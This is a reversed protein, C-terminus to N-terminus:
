KKAARQAFYFGAVASLLTGIILSTNSAFQTSVPHAAAMQVKWTREAEPTGANELNTSM